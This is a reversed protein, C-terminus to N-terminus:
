RGGEVVRGGHVYIDILSSAHRRNNIPGTYGVHRLYNIQKETPQQQEQWLGIGEATSAQKRRKKEEPPLQEYEICWGAYARAAAGHALLTDLIFQDRETDWGHGTAYLIGRRLAAFVAICISQPSHNGARVERLFINAVHSRRNAPFRDLFARDDDTMM